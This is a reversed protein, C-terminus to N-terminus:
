KFAYYRGSKVHGIITFYGGVTEELLAETQM